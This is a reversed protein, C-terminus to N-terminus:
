EAFIHNDRDSVKSCNSDNLNSRRWSREERLNEVDLVKIKDNADSLHVVGFFLVIM